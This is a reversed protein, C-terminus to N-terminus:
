WGARGKTHGKVVWAYSFLFPGQFRFRLPPLCAFSFGQPPLLHFRISCLRHHFVFCSTSRSRCGFISHYSPRVGNQTQNALFPLSRFYPSPSPLLSNLSLARPEKESWARTNARKIKNEELHRYPTEVTPPEINPTYLFRSPFVQKTQAKKATSPGRSLHAVRDAVRGRGKRRKECGRLGRPRQDDFFIDMSGVLRIV